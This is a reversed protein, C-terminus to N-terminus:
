KIQPYRGIKCVSLHIRKTVILFYTIGHSQAVIEAWLLIELAFYLAMM